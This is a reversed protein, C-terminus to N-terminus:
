EKESSRPSFSAIAEDTTEFVDWYDDMQMEALFAMVGKAPKALVVEGKEQRILRTLTVMLGLATEGIERINAMELVFHRAGERMLERVDRSADFHRPDNLLGGFNGLVAVDGDRRVSLMM